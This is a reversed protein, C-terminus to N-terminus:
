IRILNAANDLRGLKVRFYVPKGRVNVSRANLIMRPMVAPITVPPM